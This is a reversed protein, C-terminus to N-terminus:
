NPNIGSPNQLFIMYYYCVFQYFIYVNAIMRKEKAIKSNVSTTLIFNPIVIIASFSILYLVRNIGINYGLINTLVLSLYFCYFYIDMDSKNVLRIIIIGWFTNIAQVLFINLFNVNKLSAYCDYNQYKEIPFFSILQNMLDYFLSGVLLSLILITLAINKSLKSSLFAALLLLVFIIATKHFFFAVIPMLAAIKYKRKAIFSISLLCFSVAAVQRIINFSLFYYGSLIYLLLSLYPLRSDRSSVLVIPLICIIAYILLVMQFDTNLLYKVFFCITTWTVEYNESILFTSTVFSDYYSETDFGVNFDRFGCIFILLVAIIWKSLTSIKTKKYSFFFIFPLACKLFISFYQNEIM